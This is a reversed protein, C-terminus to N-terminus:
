QFFPPHLFDSISDLGNITIEIVIDLAIVIDLIVNSTIAIESIVDLFTASMM